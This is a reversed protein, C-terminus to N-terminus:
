KADGDIFKGPKIQCLLFEFLTKQDFHLGDEGKDFLWLHFSINGGMKTMHDFKDCLEVKFFM